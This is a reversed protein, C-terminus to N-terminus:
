GPIKEKVMALVFDLQEQETMETNDILIADAAQKLPSDLRNSDIYDRDELNRKVKALDIETGKALLEKYRRKSREELSATLFLKLEADPFVVTGIDRGDM